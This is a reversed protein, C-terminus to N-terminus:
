DSSLSTPSTRFMEFCTADLKMSSLISNLVIYMIISVATKYIDINCDSTNTALLKEDSNGPATLIAVFEAFVKQENNM